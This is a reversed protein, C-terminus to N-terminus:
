RSSETFWFYCKRKLINLEELHSKKMSDSFNFFKIVFSSELLSIFFPLDGISILKESLKCFRFNLPHKQPGQANGHYSIIDCTGEFYLGAISNCLFMYNAWVMVNDKKTIKWQKM